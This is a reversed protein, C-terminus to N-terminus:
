DRDISTNINCNNVDYQVRQHFKNAGHLRRSITDVNAPYVPVRGM